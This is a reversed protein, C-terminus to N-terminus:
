CDFEELIKKVKELKNENVTIDYAIIVGDKKYWHGDTNLFDKVKTYADMNKIHVRYVGEDIQWINDEM